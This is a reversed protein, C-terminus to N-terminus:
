KAISTGGYIPELQNSEVATIAEQTAMMKM